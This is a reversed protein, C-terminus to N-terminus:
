AVFYRALQFINRVSAEITSRANSRDTRTAAASIVAKLLTTITTRCMVIAQKLWSPVRLYGRSRRSVPDESLHRDQTAKAKWSDLKARSIVVRPQRSM